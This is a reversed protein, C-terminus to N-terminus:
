EPSTGLAQYKVAMLTPPLLRPFCAAIGALVRRSVRWSFRRSDLWTALEPVYHSYRALPYSSTGSFRLERIGKQILTEIAHGRLVVSLSERSHARDSNAQIFLTVGGAGCAGGLIALWKGNRNRLGTLFPQQLTPLVKLLDRLAKDDSPIRSECSLQCAAESFEEVQVKDIYYNGDAEFQRRYRRFNRRTSKGLANLFEEYSGPLILRHRHRKEYAVELDLKRSAREVALAEVGGSPILMRIRRVRQKAFLFELACCLIDGRSASDGVVMPLLGESYLMGSGIGGIKREKTFVLGIIRGAHRVAVVHPIWRRDSVSALFMRPDYSGECPVQMRRALDAAEFVDLHAAHLALTRTQGFDSIREAAFPETAM